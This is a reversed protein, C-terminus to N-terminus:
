KLLTMKKTITTGGATLRYIYIGSSLNEASLKRLYVGQEMNENVLTVVKEGIMNYVSINVFSLSPVEFRISTEPNFPNPYNQSLEFKDPGTVSIEVINSYTITGNFDIQKLRYSYKGTINNQDIFKYQKNETSNGVGKVFGVKVWSGEIDNDAKREIDWGSNNLETATTWSLNVLGNVVNATFSILEVPIPANIDAFTWWDFNLVNAIEVYNNTINVTGGMQEWTNNMGTNSHFLSLNSEPIGGLESEDYYFRMTTALAINNHKKIIKQGDKSVIFAISFQRLIGQNGNGIGPSHFREVLTTSLNETSTFMAGLGALNVASPANLDRIASISGTLGTVTNGPTENLTGITGLNIHYGELSLDGSNINLNGNVVIDHSLSVSTSNNVTLDNVTYPLINGTLQIMSGNFTYNAATSLTITGTNKLTSDLGAVNATQLTAGVNLTFIGSGAIESTGVDLISNSAVEIPFGGSFTVNTLTLNQQTTGSFIFKAGAANSNQTTADTMSFNTGLLYWKTTGTGGQSGRSVSFNGNTVTINGNVTIEIFAANGSGNSSFQGGTQIINGNIVVTASDGGAPACLYLRSSAGTNIISIDGGITVEDFGMNFNGTQNPCDWVLNYFSQNRNAPAQNTIGTITCTSGSQWTGLPITGSNVIHQYNAGNQFEVLCGAIMTINGGNIFNKKVVLDFADPGDVIRVLAGPGIEYDWSSTYTVTSMAIEQTDVAAVNAFVFKSSTNSTQITANSVRLDGLLRWTAVGGSGRSLGFNGGTVLIDGEVIILYNQAGSSGNSTLQGSQVVVDGKITISDIYATNNSLQFRSSAGSSLCTVNGAITNGSWALNLNASQSPCNWTFNYFNQNANGPANGAAGTILCTSGTGWTSVPITGGNRAHEYTSGSGFTLTGVGIEIKGDGSLIVYGSINVAVDANVSDDVTINESGTPPTVAPIWSSGDYTEWTSAVSWSGTILSRYDGASQSCISTNAIVIIVLIQIITILNKM